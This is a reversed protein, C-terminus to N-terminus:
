DRPNFKSERALQQWLTKERDSLGAPVEIKVVVMLDGKGGGRLLLGRGRVRLRQGNQTGPPIKINVREDLTPVAVQTGLV